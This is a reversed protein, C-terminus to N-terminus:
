RRRRGRLNGLWVLAARRGARRWVFVVAIPLLVLPYVKAAAALALLGASLKHHGALLAALFGATLAAPWLDYRSLVVSGLALPFLAALAVGLALRSSSAGEHVLALAVLAALAAGCVAMLVDFVHRYATLDGRQAYLSPVVFAPLSAPPYELAFDRYPVQGNMVADGHLEYFGTDLIQGRAYYGHHLVGWAVFFLAAALVAVLVALQPEARQSWSADSTSM